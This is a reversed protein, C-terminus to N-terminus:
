PGQITQNPFIQKQKGLYRISGDVAIQYVFQHKLTLVIHPIKPKRVLVHFVDTDEPVDDLIAPHFSYGLKRKQASLDKEIIGRHMQRKALIKSGNKSLLYRVDGGLPYIGPKVQAPILYVWMKGDGAPIVATNYRRTPKNKAKFDTYATLLARASKYYVEKDLRTRKNRIVKYNSSGQVQVVEYVVEFASKGELLRGYVVHWGDDLKQAIYQKIPSPNAGSSQLADTALSAARDYEALLRGRKTIQSLESGSAPATRESYSLYPIFILLLILIRKPSM